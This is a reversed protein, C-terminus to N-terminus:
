NEADIKQALKSSINKGGKYVLHKTIVSSYNNKKAFEAASEKIVTMMEAEVAKKDIDKAAIQSLYESEAILTEIEVVAVESEVELYFPLTLTIIVIFIAAAKRYYDM